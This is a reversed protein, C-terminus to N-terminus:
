QAQGCLDRHLLLLTLCGEVPLCGGVLISPSAPLRKARSIDHGTLSACLLLAQETHMGWVDDMEALNARSSLRVFVKLQELRNGVHSGLM